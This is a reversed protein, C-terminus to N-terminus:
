PYNQIGSKKRTAKVDVIEKASNKIPMRTFITQGDTKPEKGRSIRDPAFSTQEGRLHSKLEKALFDNVPSDDVPLSEQGFPYKDFSEEDLYPVFEDFVLDDGPVKAPRVAPDYFKNVDCKLCPIILFM